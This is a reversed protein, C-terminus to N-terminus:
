HIPPPPFSRGISHLYAIIKPKLHDHRGYLAWIRGLEAQAAAYALEPLDADGIVYHHEGVARIDCGTAVVERVFDPIQDFQMQTM